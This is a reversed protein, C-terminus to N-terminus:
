IDDTERDLFRITVQNKTSKVQHFMIDVVTFLEKTKGLRYVRSIRVSINIELYEDM